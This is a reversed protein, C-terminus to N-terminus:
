NKPDFPEKPNSWSITFFFYGSVFLIKAIVSHVVLVTESSILFGFFFFFVIM